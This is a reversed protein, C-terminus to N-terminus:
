EAKGPEFGVGAVAKKLAEPDPTGHVTASATELSVDVGTVGPVKGLAETVSAACHKCSM